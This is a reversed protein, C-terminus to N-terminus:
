TRVDRALPVPGEKGTVSWSAYHARCTIMSLSPRIRTMYRDFFLLNAQQALLLPFTILSTVELQQVPM